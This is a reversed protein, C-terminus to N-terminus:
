VAITPHPRNNPTTKETTPAIMARAIAEAHRLLDREARLDNEEGGVPRATDIEGAQFRLLDLRERRAREDGELGALREALRAHRAWADAVRGLLPM